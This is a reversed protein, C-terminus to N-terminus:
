HTKWGLHTNPAPHPDGLPITGLVWRGGLTFVVYISGLVHKVYSRHYNHIAVIDFFNLKRFKSKEAVRPSISRLCTRYWERPLGGGLVWCGVLTFFM